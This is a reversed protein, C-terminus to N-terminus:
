KRVFYLDTLCSEGTANYMSPTCLEKQLAFVGEVSSIMRPREIVYKADFLVQLPQLDQLTRAKGEVILWTEIDFVAVKRSQILQTAGQLALQDAYEVDIIVLPISSFRFQAQARAVLEDITKVEVEVANVDDNQAATSIGFKLTRPGNPSGAAHWYSDFRAQYAPGNLAASTAMYGHHRPNAEVAVAFCGQAAALLPFIGLHSGFQFMIGGKCKGALYQEMAAITGGFDHTSWVSKYWDAGPYIPREDYDPFAVMFDSGWPVHVVSARFNHTPIKRVTALISSPTNPIPQPPLEPCRLFFWLLPLIPLFAIVSRAMDKSPQIYRVDVETFSPLRLGLLLFGGVSLGGVV